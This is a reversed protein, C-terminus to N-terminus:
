PTGGDDIAVNLTIRHIAYDGQFMPLPIARLERHLCHVLKKSAPPDAEIRTGRVEGSPTIIAEITVTLVEGAPGPSHQQVCADLAAQRPAIRRATAVTDIDGQVQDPEPNFDMADRLELTATVKTTEGPTVDVSQTWEGFGEHRVAVALTQASTLGESLILAGGSNRLEGGVWIEGYPPDAQVELRATPRQPEPKPKLLGPLFVAALTAATALLGGIAVMRFPFKKPRSVSLTINRRDNLGSAIVIRVTGSQAPMKRPDIRVTIHQETAEPDLHEPSVEAWDVPACSARAKLRGNGARTVIIQEVHPDWGVEITRQEGGEVMLRPGSTVRVPNTGDGIDLTRAGGLGAPAPPPGGSSLSLRREGSEEQGERLRFSPTPQHELETTPELSFSDLEAEAIASAEVEWREDFAARSAPSKLTSWADDLQAYQKEAAVPDTLQRATAYRAQYAQEIAGLSASKDVGLVSYHDIFDLEDDPLTSIRRASYSALMEDLVRGTAAETLGLAVGQDLIAEEARQSLVGEAIAGQIFLKLVDAKRAHDRGDLEAIYGDRHELLARRCLKVNKIVWIAEHRYKPNSQQSQAWGRRKKIAAITADEAADRAIGLYEFLDAKGVTSLFTSLQDFDQPDM